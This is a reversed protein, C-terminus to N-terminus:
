DGRWRMEAEFQRRGPSLTCRAFRASKQPASGEFFFFRGQPATKQAARRQAARPTSDEIIYLPISQLGFTDRASKESCNQFFSAAAWFAFFCCCPVSHQLKKTDFDFEAYFEAKFVLVGPASRTEPSTKHVHPYHIGFIM